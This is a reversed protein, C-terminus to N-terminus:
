GSVGADTSSGEAGVDGITDAASDDKNLMASVARAVAVAVPILAVLGVLGGAGAKSVGKGKGVVGAAMSAAAGIPAMLDSGVSLLKKASSVRGRVNEVELELLQRDSTIQQRLLQKRQALDTM